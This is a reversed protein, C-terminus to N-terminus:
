AYWGLIVLKKQLLTIGMNSLILCIVGVSGNGVRLFKLRYRKTLVFWRVMLSSRMIPVLGLLCGHYISIPAIGRFANIIENDHNFFEFLIQGM